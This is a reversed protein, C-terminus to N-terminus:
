ILELEKTITKYIFDTANIGNRRRYNLLEDFIKERTAKLPDNGEIFVSQIAAAIANFNKGDVLYSVNLIKEGLETFIMSEGTLFIMPKRTFQYEAIFSNSDHIMGDSTAFISQYYAGTYVQANPLADWMHFYEEAAAISPFLKTEVMSLLLKPHPKVVWSIEPHTKAFEYMFRFNHQFTSYNNINAFKGITWHPAWIIKKADPRTMKWPFNLRITHNFFVDMKPLGSVIGRPVGLRCNKDFLKRTLETDFFFRWALLFLSINYYTSITTTEYAYHIYACLTQPTLINVKFSKPLLELYPRLFIIIDQPPSEEELDFVAVVNIGSAQLQALDHQTDQITSDMGRCLFVTTEFRPNEAFLNYLEDGCWVAAHDTVFAVKIKNQRRLREVTRAYINEIIANFINVDIMQSLAYFYDYTMRCFDEESFIKLELLKMTLYSSVLKSAKETLHTDDVFSEEADQLDFLDVVKFDHLRELENLINKLPTLFKKRYSERVAPAYPLIVGVPKADNNLCLTIYADLTQLNEDFADVTLRNDKDRFLIDPELGILVFNIKNGVLCFINKAISYAQQLTQCNDAFNASRSGIPTIFNLNLGAKFSDNGTAFFNM